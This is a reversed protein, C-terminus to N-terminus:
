RNGWIELAFPYCKEVAFYEEFEQGFFYIFIQRIGLTLEETSQMYNLTKLVEKIELSYADHPEGMDLLGMPDWENIVRKILHYEDM